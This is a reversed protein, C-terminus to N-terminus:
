RNDLEAVWTDVEEMARRWASPSVGDPRNTFEPHQDMDFHCACTMDVIEGDWVPVIQIM